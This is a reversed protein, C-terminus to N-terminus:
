KSSGSQRLVPTAEPYRPPAVPKAVAPAVLGGYRAPGLQPMSPALLRGTRLITSIVLGISRAGGIRRRQAVARRIICRGSV